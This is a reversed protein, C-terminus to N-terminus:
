DKVAYEGVLMHHDSMFAPGAYKNIQTLGDSFLMHDIPIKLFKFGNISLWTPNQMFGYAQYYLGSLDLVDKFYPSFPTINWDGMMVINEHEDEAIRAAVTQLEYERQAKAVPGSPPHPHLAYVAIPESAEPPQVVVRLAFSMYYPGALVIKESEIFEYRSILMMGFAREQPEHIQYPYVASLKEAQAVTRATAEQFVVIDAMGESSLFYDAIRDFTTRAYNHNYTILRYDAQGGPATFQSPDQLNLRSEVVSFLAIFIAVAAYLYRRFYLCMVTLIFGGIAYQLTFHSFLDFLYYFEAFLSLLFAFALTELLKKSLSNLIKEIRAIVGRM